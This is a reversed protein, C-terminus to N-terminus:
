TNSLALPECSFHLLKLVRLIQQHWVVELTAVRGIRNEFRCSAGLLHSNRGASQGSGRGRSRTSPTTPPSKTRRPSPPTTSSTDRFYEITGGLAIVAHGIHIIETAEDGIAHVSLLKLTDPDFILKLMGARDGVM